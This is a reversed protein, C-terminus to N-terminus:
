EAPVMYSAARLRQETAALQTQLREFQGDDSGKFAADCAPKRRIDLAGMQERGYDSLALLVV